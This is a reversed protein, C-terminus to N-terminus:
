GGVTKSVLAFSNSRRRQIAIIAGTATKFSVVITKSGESDQIRGPTMGGGAGLHANLRLDRNCPGDPTPFCHKTDSTTQLIKILDKRPPKDRKLGEVLM